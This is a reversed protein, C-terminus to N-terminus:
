KRWIWYGYNPYPFRCEFGPYREVFLSETLDDQIHIEYPNGYLVGQKYRYPVAVVIYDSHAKAYELVAQADEVTMHEIVDGFIVIDYHEYKLDKINAEFVHHYMKDLGHRIINEQWVEVADMYLHEGLHRFYEGDCAGVDLCTSGKPLRHEILWKLEQKGKNYSSM